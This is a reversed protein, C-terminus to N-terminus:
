LNPKAPIFKAIVLGLLTSAMVATLSAKTIDIFTYLGSHVAPLVASLLAEMLSETENQYARQTQTKLTWVAAPIPVILVASILGAFAGGALTDKKVHTLMWVFYSIIFTSVAMLVAIKLSDTFLDAQPGLKWRSIAIVFPTAFVTMGIVFARRQSLQRL